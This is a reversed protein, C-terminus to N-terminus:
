CRRNIRIMTYHRYNHGTFQNIGEFVTNKDVYFGEKPRIEKRWRKLYDVKPEPLPMNRSSSYDAETIKHDFVGDSVYEKKTREDKTIYDALDKLEGKEYLLQPDKVKGHPWLQNMIKIINTGPLDTIVLHIHWNGTSTCEINRIWRLECNRKRFEKRIATYFKRFHQKVTKMDPPREEKRYTLTTFWDQGVKFYMRLRHRARKSKNWQNVKEMQERTPKQKEKRKSGPAGYRGDHYEEVEIVNEFIYRNRRVM